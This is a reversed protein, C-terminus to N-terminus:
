PTAEERMLAHLRRNGVRAVDAIQRMMVASGPAAEGAWREADEEVRALRETLPSLVRDREVPKLTRAGHVMGDSVLRDYLKALSKMTAADATITLDRTYDHLHDLFRGLAELREGLTRAQTLRLHDESFQTLLPDPRPPAKRVVVAAQQPNPSRVFLLWGGVALLLTAAMLTLAHYLPITPFRSATEDPTPSCATGDASPDEWEGGKGALLMRVLERKAQSRPVPIQTIRREMRVLSAQWNRCAACQELHVAVEDSPRDPEPSGLLLTKARDCNM